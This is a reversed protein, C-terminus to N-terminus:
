TGLDATRRAARWQEVLSLQEAWQQIYEHDLEHTRIRLIAAVDEIQRQSESLKAWELKAIVLDEATAVALRMGQFDVFERREFELRSFARSKRTILDIKWGTTLDVINFQGENRHAELATELDAYYESRPLRAVLTRLQDPTPAVVIDIDQTARPSGHYSSALSGTLMYPIGVQDLHSIIRRFIDASTM